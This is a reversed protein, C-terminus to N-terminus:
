PVQAQPGVLRELADLPALAARELLLQRALLARNLARRDLVTPTAMARRYGSQRAPPRRAARRRTPRPAGAARARRSPRGRGRRLGMSADPFIASISSRISSVVGRGM